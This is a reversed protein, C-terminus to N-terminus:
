HGTSRFWAIVSRRWSTNFEVHAPMDTSTQRYYASLLKAAADIHDNDLIEPVTM